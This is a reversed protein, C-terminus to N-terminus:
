LNNNKLLDLTNEIFNLTETCVTKRAEQQEFMLTKPMMKAYVKHMGFKNHLIQQLSKKDIGVTGSIARIRLRYDFRVLNGIEEINDDTKSTRLLAMEVHIKKFMKETM